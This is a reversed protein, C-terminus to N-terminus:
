LQPKAAAGVNPARWRLAVASVNDPGGHMNARAILQEVADAVNPENALIEAIEDDGVANTLGDSCILLTDEPKVEVLRADVEVTATTGVARTIVNRRVLLEPHDREILGRRVMANFLTHDETLVRLRDRRMRYVRSDGVHAVAARQGQVFVAAVTSGMGRWELRQCSANYIRRNARQIAAVLLPLVSSQPATTARPWTMDGDAIASSILEVTMRAAVEGAPGGGMGDAVIYLGLDPFAGFRDENNSRVMGQHTAAAHDFSCADLARVPQPSPIDTTMVPQM